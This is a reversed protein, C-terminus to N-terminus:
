SKSGVNLYIDGTSTVRRRMIRNVPNSFDVECIYGVQFYAREGSGLHSALFTELVM